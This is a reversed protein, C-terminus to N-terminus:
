TSVQLILHECLLRNREWIHKRVKTILEGAMLDRYAPYQMLSRAMHNEFQADFVLGKNTDWPLSLSGDLNKTLDAQNRDFRNEPERSPPSILM